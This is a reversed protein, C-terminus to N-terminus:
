RRDPASRRSLIAALALGGILSVHELAVTMDCFADEGEKAWFPHAVPITLLTFVALAGAAPWVCRNAVIALSAGLQLALTAANVAWGPTLGFGEMVAASASFDVLKALGSSWFVFTLVVRALVAFARSDLIAAIM